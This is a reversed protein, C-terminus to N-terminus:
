TVHTAPLYLDYLKMAVVCGDSSWRYGPSDKKESSRTFVEVKDAVM